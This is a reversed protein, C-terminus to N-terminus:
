KCVPGKQWLFQDQIYGHLSFQYLMTLPTQRKILEGAVYMYMCVYMCVYMYIYISIYICKSVPYREICAIARVYLEGAMLSQVTM